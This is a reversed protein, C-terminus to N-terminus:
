RAAAKILDPCYPAVSKESRPDPLCYQCYRAAGAVTYDADSDGSLMMTASNLRMDYVFGRSGVYGGYSNKANVAGCVFGGQNTQVEFLESWQASTPDKLKREIAAKALAFEPPVAHTRKTAHSKQTSSAKDFCALRAEPDTISKCHATTTWALALLTVLMKMIFHGM